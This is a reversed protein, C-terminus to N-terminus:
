WSSWDSGIQSKEKDKFSFHMRRPPHRPLAVRVEFDGRRLVFRVLVNLASQEKSEGLARRGAETVRIESVYDGGSDHTGLPGLCSSVELEHLYM